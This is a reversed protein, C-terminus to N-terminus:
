ITQLERTQTVIKLVYQYVVPLALLAGGPTAMLSAVKASGSAVTVFLRLRLHRTRAAAILTSEHLSTQSPEVDEAWVTQLDGSWNITTRALLQGAISTEVWAFHLVDRDIQKMIADVQSRATQWAEGALESIGFSVGAEAGQDVAAVQGLLEADLADEQVLPNADFSVASSQAQRSQQSREVLGGLRDPVQDLSANVRALAAHNTKLIERALDLDAPLQVRYTEVDPQLSEDALGFSVDRPQSVWLGLVDDASSEFVPM